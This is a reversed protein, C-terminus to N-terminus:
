STSTLRAPTMMAEAIDVVEAHAQAIEMHRSPPMVCRTAIPRVVDVANSCGKHASNCLYRSGHHSSAHCRAAHPKRTGGGEWYARCPPRARDVHACLSSCRHMEDCGGGCPGSGKSTPRWPLVKGCPCCDLGFSAAGGDDGQVTVVIGATATCKGRKECQAHWM